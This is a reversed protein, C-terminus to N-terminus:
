KPILLEYEKESLWGENKLHAAGRSIHTKFSSVDLINFKEGIEKIEMQFMHNQQILTYLEDVLSVMAHFRNSLVQKIKSRGFASKLKTTLCVTNVISPPIINYRKKSEIQYCILYFSVYFLTSKRFEPNEKVGLNAFESLDTEEIKIFRGLQDIIIKSNKKLKEIGEKYGLVKAECSAELDQLNKQLNKIKTELESKLRFITLTKRETLIELNKETEKLKKSIESVIKKTRKSREKWKQEGTKDNKEACRLAEFKCNEIKTKDTKISKEIKIKEKYLPLEQRQFTKTTKVIQYDYDKKLQIIQPNVIEEEKKIRETFKYRTEAVISKLYEVHQGNIKKILKMCRYLRDKNEKISTHITKIEELGSSIDTNEIIQSLLGIEYPEEEIKKAESYYSDFETLFDSDTILGKITTEKEEIPTEFYNLHDSLFALHTECTKSSRKLNEIFLKINPIKAYAVKHNFRNLGDFLLPKEFLPILWLPYGIKSIFSIKEEQRKSLLGGGKERGVEALAYITAIEMEPTFPDTRNESLVSFPLIANSASPTLNSM